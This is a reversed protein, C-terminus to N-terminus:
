SKLWNMFENYPLTNLIDDKTAWGRRAVSVGYKMMDMQWVAHSDSDITLKVGYKVAQQVLSDPLDLDLQGRM